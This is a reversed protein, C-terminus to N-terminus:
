IETLVKERGHNLLRYRSIFDDHNVLSYDTRPYRDIKALVLFFSTSYAGCMRRKGVFASRGHLM